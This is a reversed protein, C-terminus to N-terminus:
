VVLKLNLSSVMSWNFHSAEGCDAHTRVGTHIKSVPGPPRCRELGRSMGGRGGRGTGIGGHNIGVPLCATLAGALVLRILYPMDSDASILCSSQEMAAALCLFTRQWIYRRTPSEQYSALLSEDCLSSALRV